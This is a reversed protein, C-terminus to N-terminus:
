SPVGCTLSHVGTRTATLGAGSYARRLPAIQLDVIDTKLPSTAPVRRSPCRDVGARGRRWGRGTHDTTGTANLKPFHAWSGDPRVRREPKACEWAWAPECKTSRVYSPDVRRRWEGGRAWCWVVADPVALLQEASARLHDYRLRERCGAARALEIFRQADWQVLSDDQELVLRTEGAEAAADSIVVEVGADVLAAVIERRRSDREDKMHVRRQGPLVLGRVVSRLPALDGPPVVVAAAAVYGQRKIEDLFVHRTM